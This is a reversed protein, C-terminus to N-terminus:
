FIRIVNQSPSLVDVPDRAHRVLARFFLKEEAPELYEGHSNWANM